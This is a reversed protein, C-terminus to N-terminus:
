MFLHNLEWAEKKIYMLGSFSWRRIIARNIKGWNIIERSMMCLHYYLAINKRKCKKNGIEGLIKEECWGIKNKM